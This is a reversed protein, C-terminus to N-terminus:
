DIYKSLRATIVKNGEYQLSMNYIAIGFGHASSGLDYQWLRISDKRYTPRGIIEIVQNTDKGILLQQNILDNGMRWRENKNSNWREKNFVHEEEPKNITNIFSNYFYYHLGIYTIVLLLVSYLFLSRKKKLIIALILSLVILIQLAVVIISIINM